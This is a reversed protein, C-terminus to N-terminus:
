SKAIEASKDAAFKFMCGYHRSSQVEVYEHSLSLGLQETMDSEKLGM